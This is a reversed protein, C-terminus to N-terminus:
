LAAAAFADARRKWQAAVRQTAGYVCAATVAGIAVAAFVNSTILLTGAAVGVFSGWVWLTLRNM